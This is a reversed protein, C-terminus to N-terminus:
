VSEEHWPVSRLEDDADDALRTVVDRSLVDATRVEVEVHLAAEVRLLVEEVAPREEVPDGFGALDPVRALAGVPDADMVVRGSGALRVRDLRSVHPSPPRRDGGGGPVRRLREAHWSPRYLRATIGAVPANGGQLLLM